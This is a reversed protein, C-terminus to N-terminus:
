GSEIQESGIPFSIAEVFLAQRIWVATIREELVAVSPDPQCAADPRTQKHSLRIRGPRYHVPDVCDLVPQGAVTNVAHKFGRIAPQPDPGPGGEVLRLSHVFRAGRFESTVRRFISYVIDRAKAFILCAVDPNPSGSMPSYLNCSVSQNGIAFRVAKASASDALDGLLKIPLHTHKITSAGTKDVSEIPIAEDRSFDGQGLAHSPFPAPILVGHLIVGPVPPKRCVAPKKAEGSQGTDLLHRPCPWLSEVGNAM